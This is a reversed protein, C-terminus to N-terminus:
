RCLSLESLFGPIYLECEDFKMGNQLESARDSLDLERQLGYRAKIAANQAIDRLRRAFSAYPNKRSKSVRTVSGMYRETVYNWYCWMPGANIIDDPIHLM